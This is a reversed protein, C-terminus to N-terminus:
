YLWFRKISKYSELNSFSGLLFSNSFLYCITISNVNAIKGCFMFSNILDQEICDYPLNKVFIIKCGAPRTTQSIDKSKQQLLRPVMPRDIKLYRKGM